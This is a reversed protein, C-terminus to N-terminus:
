PWSVTAARSSSAGVSARRGRTSATAGRRRGTFPRSRARASCRGSCPWRPPSTSGSAGAPRRASSTRSSRAWSRRGRRRCAVGPRRRRARSAPRRRRDPEDDRVDGAGRDGAGEVGRYPGHQGFPTISTLIARPNERHLADWGLGRQDLYGPPFSEVVVDARRAMELARRRGDTTDLDLVLSRAGGAYAWWALGAEPPEVGDANASSHRLASGGPPEVRVLDAGLDALIKGCLAGLDGTFDLVRLHALPPTTM